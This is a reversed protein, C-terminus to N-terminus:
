PNRVCNYTLEVDPGSNSSRSHTPRSRASPIRPLAWTRGNPPAPGTTPSRSRCRGGDALLMGHTKLAKIVVKQSDTYGSEDFDAKLRFRVGYPPANPDTSEPGGAHSAPHVYVGARMRDNPLIFRIAHDISGSAVEDATPTMAAIPFGGADASTCQDGRLNDPYQKNLDWIFFGQPRSAM